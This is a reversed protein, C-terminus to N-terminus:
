GELAIREFELPFRRRMGAEVQRRIAAASDLPWIESLLARAEVVTSDRLIKKLLPISFPAMSMEGIGLALLIWCNLPDGAMEGCMGVVIGARRGAQCIRQIMRLHAPHLPEYLYAVQENTRDVALTYQVLDNTGISLFGAHPAILDAIMAAAPTEIMVGMPVERDIAVGEKILQAKTRELAERAFRVEALGSVMPLLIKLKGYQSARLLARLQVEFLEPRSVSMRVGRLGLAPNPEESLELGSPVKEGGLDLTRIVAGHPAIGEVIERYSALQEEESPLDPRNMFLFETRFLGIGEAGYRVADPIEDSQDINALTKVSVGDNTEAPLNVYRLLERTMARFDALQKRYEAITDPDPDLLVRGSRGDVIMTVGDNVNPVLDHGAGVVAPIELSRAMITVHSTRSGAETAIGGIGDRTVQAIEAPSLDEAVVIVGAPANGLGEPERGMLVQLVRRVIFGVDGARERIYPDTMSEFMAELRRLERQLAWEANLQHERINQIAQDLLTPDELFLFQADFISGVLGTSQMGDRIEELRARTERFAEQLREVELEVHDPRVHHEPIILRERRLIYAPGIAIGPSAPIGRRDNGNSSM